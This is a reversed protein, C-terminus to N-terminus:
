EALIEDIRELSSQPLVSFARLFLAYHKLAEILQRKRLNCHDFSALAFDMLHVQNSGNWAPMTDHKLSCKINILKSLDYKHGYALPRENPSRGIVSPPQVSSSEDSTQGSENTLDISSTVKAAFLWKNECHTCKLPNQRFNVSLSNARLLLDGFNEECVYEFENLDLHLHFRVACRDFALRNLKSCNLRNRGLYIHLQDMPSRYDIMSDKSSGSTSRGSAAGNNGQRQPSERTAQVGRRTSDQDSQVTPIEDEFVIQLKKLSRLLLEKTNKELSQLQTRNFQAPPPRFRFRFAGGYVYEISNAELNLHSLQPISSYSNPAIIKIQNEGLDLLRLRPFLVRIEEHIRERHRLRMDEPYAYSHLDDTSDAPSHHSFHPHHDLHPNNQDVPGEVPMPYHHVIRLRTVPLSFHKLRNGRLSLVRLERFKSLERVLRSTTLHTSIQEDDENELQNYALLLTHVSEYSLGTSSRDVFAISRLNTYSLDIYEFRLRSLQFEYDLYPLASSVFGYLQVHQGINTQNVQSVPTSYWSHVTEEDPPSDANHRGYLRGDEFRFSRDAHSRRREAPTSPPPQDPKSKSYFQRVRELVVSIDLNPDNHSCIVHVNAHEYSALRHHLTQLLEPKLYSITTFKSCRCPRLVHDPPCNSLKIVNATLPSAHSAFSAVFFSALLLVPLSSLLGSHMNVLTRKISLHASSFRKKQLWSAVKFRM